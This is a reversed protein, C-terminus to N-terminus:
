LNIDKFKEFVEKEELQKWSFNAPNTSIGVENFLYLGLVEGMKKFKAGGAGCTLAFCWDGSSKYKADYMGWRDHMSKRYVPMAHFTLNMMKLYAFSYEAFTYQRGESSNEYFNQNPVNTIKQDFYLSDVEPNLYLERSCKELCDYSRVDDTNANSIIDYKTKPILYNWVGYLGPDEELEYYSINSHKAMYRDIIKKEEEFDPSTKPHGLLIECKNFITQKSM